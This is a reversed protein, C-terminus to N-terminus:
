YMKDELCRINKAINKISEARIMDYDTNAKEMVKQFFM